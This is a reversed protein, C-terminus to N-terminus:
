VLLEFQYSVASLAYLPATEARLIRPGLGCLVGGNQEFLNIEEPSFGGEPGFVILLKEGPKMKTLTQALTSREGQKASEEYAVLVKEYISFQDILEQEKEVLTIEPIWQRHSQEAAEQAIKELRKAKNGKKKHDWKVISNKAPFGIFHYAGLETGKQVIWELKDGKPFGCAITVKIPLEKVAEEKSIESIQVESDSIETIEGLIVIGDEFVLFLQDEPKMRMVRVIHHYNEGNVSFLNKEEYTENIFYRQM